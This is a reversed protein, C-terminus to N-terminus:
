KDNEGPEAQDEGEDAQATEEASETEDGAEEPPQPLPETQAKIHAPSIPIHCSPCAVPKVFGL